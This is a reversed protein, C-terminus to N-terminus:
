KGRQRNLSLVAAQSAIQRRYITVAASGVVYLLPCRVMSKRFLSEWLEGGAFSWCIIYFLLEGSKYPFGNTQKVTDM